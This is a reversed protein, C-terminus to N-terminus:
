VYLGAGKRIIRKSKLGVGTTTKLISRATAAAAPNGTFAAVPAVAADALISGVGSDKLFSGVKKIGEWLSSFFGAGTVGTNEIMGHYNATSMIEGPSLELNIGNRATAVKKANLPHLLVISGRGISDATLRIKAGRLAQQQQKHTIQLKVQIYPM